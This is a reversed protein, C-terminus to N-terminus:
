KLEETSVHSQLKLLLVRVVDPVVVTFLARALVVGRHAAHADDRGVRGGDSVIVTLAGRPTM